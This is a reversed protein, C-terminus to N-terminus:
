QFIRYHSIKIQIYIPKKINRGALTLEKAFKIHFKILNLSFKQFYIMSIKFDIFDTSIITMIM